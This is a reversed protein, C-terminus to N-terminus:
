DVEDTATILAGSSGFVGSQVVGADNVGHPAADHCELCDLRDAPAIAQIPADTTADPIFTSADVRHEANPAANNYVATAAAGVGYHCVMCGDTATDAIFLKYNTNQHIDHCYMCSNSTAAYGSHATDTYPPGRFTGEDNGAYAAGTTALVLLAASAAILLVRKM